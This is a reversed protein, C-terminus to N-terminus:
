LTRTIPDVGDGGRLHSCLGMLFVGNEVLSSCCFVSCPPGNVLKEGMQMLRASGVSVQEHVPFINSHRM